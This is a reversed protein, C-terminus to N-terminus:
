RIAHTIEQASDTYFRLYLTKQLSRFIWCLRKLGYRYLSSLFVNWESMPGTGIKSQTDTRTAAALKDHLINGEQHRFQYLREMFCHALGNLMDFCNPAGIVLTDAAVIKDRLGSMDDEVKCKNDKVCGLCAICPGISMGSLSIFETDGDIEKLIEQVLQNTNRERRPSCSIGLVNM